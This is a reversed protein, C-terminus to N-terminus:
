IGSTMRKEVTARDTYKQDIQGMKYYHKNRIHGAAIAGAGLVVALAKTKPSLKSIKDLLKPFKESISKTISKSGKALKSSAGKVTKTVNQAIKNSKIDKLTNQVVNKAKEAIKPAKSTIKEVTEGTGKFVQEYMAQKEAHAAGTAAKKINEVNSIIKNADTVAAAEKAVKAIKETEPSLKKVVNPFEKVKPFLNKLGNIVYDVGKAIPTSLKTNKAVAYAGAATGGLVVTDQALTTLNNKIQSGACNVRNSLDGKGNSVLPALTPGLAVQNVYSTM